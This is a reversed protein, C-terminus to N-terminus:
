IAPSFCPRPTRPKAHPPVKAGDPMKIRFVFPSSPKCPDGSLIALRASPVLAPFAKWKIEDPRLMVHQEASSSASEAPRSSHVLTLAALVLPLAISGCRVFRTFFAHLIRARETEDPVFYVFPPDKHFARALVGAATNVQDESFRRTKLSVDM